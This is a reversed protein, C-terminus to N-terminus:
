CFSDIGVTRPQNSRGHIQKPHGMNLSMSNAQKTNKISEIHPRQLVRESIKQAKMRSVHLNFKQQQELIDPSSGVVQGDLQIIPEVKRRSNPIMGTNITFNSTVNKIERDYIIQQNINSGLSKDFFDDIMRPNAEQFRPAAEFGNQNLQVVPQKPPPVGGPKQNYFNFGHIPDQAGQGQGTSQAFGQINDLVIRKITEYKEQTRHMLQQLVPKLKKNGAGTPTGRVPKVQNSLSSNDAAKGLEKKQSIILKFSDNMEEMLPTSQSSSENQSEEDSKESTQASEEKKDQEAEKKFKSINKTSEEDNFTEIIHASKPSEMNEKKIFDNSFDVIDENEEKESKKSVVKEEKPGFFPENTEEKKKTPATGESKKKFDHGNRSQQQKRKQKYNGENKGRFKKARYGNKQHNKKYWDQRRGKGWDDRRRVKRYEGREYYEEEEWNGYRRGNDWHDRYGGKKARGSKRVRVVEGEESSSEDSSHVVKRDGIIDKKINWFHKLDILIYKETWGHKECYNLLMRKKISPYLQAFKLLMSKSPEDLSTMTTRYYQKAEKASQNVTKKGRQPKKATQKKYLQQYRQDINM